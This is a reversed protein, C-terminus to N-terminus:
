TRVKEPMITDISLGFIIGNLSDIFFDTFDPRNPRTLEASEM